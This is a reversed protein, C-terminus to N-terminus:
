LFSAFCNLSSTLLVAVPWGVEDEAAADEEGDEDESTSYYESDDEVFRERMFLHFYTQPEGRKPKRNKKTRKRRPKKRKESSTERGQVRKMPSGSGGRAGGAGGIESHFENAWGARPRLGEGDDVSRRRLRKDKGHANKQGVYKGAGNRIHTDM